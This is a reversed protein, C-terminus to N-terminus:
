GNEDDDKVEAGCELCYSGSYEKRIFGLHIHNHCNTCIFVDTYGRCDPELPIMKCYRKEQVDVSQQQHIIPQQSIIKLVDDYEDRVGNIYDKDFNNKSAYDDAKVELTTKRDYRAKYQILGNDLDITADCKSTKMGMGKLVFCRANFTKKM